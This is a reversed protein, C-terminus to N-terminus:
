GMSGAYAVDLPTLEQARAARAISAVAASSGAIWLRRNM